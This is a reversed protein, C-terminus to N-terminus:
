HKFAKLLFHLGKRPKFTTTCQKTKKFLTKEGWLAHLPFILLCKYTTNKEEELQTPNVPM